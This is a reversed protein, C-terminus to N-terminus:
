NNYTTFSKCYNPKIKKINDLEKKSFNSTLQHMPEVKLLTNTDLNCIYKKIYIEGIPVCDIAINILAICICFTYQILLRKNM